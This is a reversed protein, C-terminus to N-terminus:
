QLDLVQIKFSLENSPSLLKKVILQMEKLALQCHTKAVLDAETQEIRTLVRRADRLHRSIINDSIIDEVSM